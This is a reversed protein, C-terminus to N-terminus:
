RFCGVLWIFLCLFTVCVCMTVFYHIPNQYFTCAGTEFHHEIPSWREWRQSTTLLCWSSLGYRITQWHSSGIGDCWKCTLCPCTTIWWKGFEVFLSYIQNEKEKQYLLWFLSFTFSRSVRFFKKEFRKSKSFKAFELSKEQQQLAFKLKLIKLCNSLDPCYIRWRLKLEWVLACSCMSFLVLSDSKLRLPFYVRYTYSHNNLTYWVEVFYRAVMYRVRWSKDAIASQIVPLVLQKSEEPSLRFSFLSLRLSHERCTM